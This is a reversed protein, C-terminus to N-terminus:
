TAESGLKYEVLRAITEIIDFFEWWKCQRLVAPVYFSWPGGQPSIPASRNLVKPIYPKVARYVDVVAIGTGPQSFDETM